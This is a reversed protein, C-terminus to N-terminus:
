GAAEHPGEGLRQPADSVRPVALCPLFGEQPAEGLGQM